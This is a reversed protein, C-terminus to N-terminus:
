FSIRLAVEGEKLSLVIFNAFVRSFTSSIFNCKDEAILLAGTNVLIRYKERVLDIAGYADPTARDNM